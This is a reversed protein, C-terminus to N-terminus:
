ASAVLKWGGEVFATSMFGIVFHEQSARRGKEDGRSTIVARTHSGTHSM